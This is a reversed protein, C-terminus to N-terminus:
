KECIEWNFVIKKKKSNKKALVIVFTANKLLVLQTLLLFTIEILPIFIFTIKEFKFFYYNEFEFFLYSTHNVDRTTGRM